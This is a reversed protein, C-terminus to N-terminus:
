GLLMWDRRRLQKSCNNSGMENLRVLVNMRGVDFNDGVTPCPHNYIALGMRVGKQPVAGLGPIDFGRHAFGLSDVNPGRDRPKEHEFAGAGREM